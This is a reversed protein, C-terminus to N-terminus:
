RVACVEVSRAGTVAARWPVPSADTPVRLVTRKAPPLTGVEASPSTGFRGLTVPARTATRARLSAGGQPLEVGIPGGPDENRLVQCGAPRRGAPSPRLRLELASALVRDAGQRVSESQRELEPLSFGLSGYRASADLYPGAPAVNGFVGLSRIGAFGPDVHDRALELVAFQARSPISYANRYGAAADRLLALNTALSFACGAFLLAVGRRSFRIGRAADTAVLLVGVAGMYVYRESGPTRLDSFALAALTGFALVIGLSVWLSSPVDGRRIRAALAVVALVALIAGWGLEGGLEDAEGPFDYDLGALGATATAIVDAVYNPILLANSLRVESESSGPSDLAWLWWALYLAFPVLFIWARRRDRGLLISIGVGAIFALGTTFTAVSLLILACAAIDGSRDDRELALLAALGAAISFLAAAGIPAVAYLGASGFFLLVVAPALAPLSGIRRRTLAYFSAAALVLALVGLLRFPLYGAGLTELIAKYALRTTAILNGNHPELVDSASLDPTFLVWDLEDPNFTTGRNLYLILAAASAMAACLIGWCLRETVVLGRSTIPLLIRPVTARDEGVRQPVGALARCSLSAL